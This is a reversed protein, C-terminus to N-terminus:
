CEQFSLHERYNKDLQQACSTAECQLWQAEQWQLNLLRVKRQPYPSSLKHDKVYPMRLCSVMNLILKKHGEAQIGALYNEKLHKASAKSMFGAYILLDEDM